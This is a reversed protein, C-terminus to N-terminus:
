RPVALTTVTGNGPQSTINLRGEILEAREHMSVLGLSGRREYGDKVADMDFGQGDDRITAVLWDDLEAIEISCHQANSHKLVNNVAEQVIAFVTLEINHSLREPYSASLHMQPGTGSEFRELFRQLAVVLGGDPADLVLPRLDFLLERIERTTRLASERISRLEPVVRQPEHQVLKEAFELSMAIQAIKQAPGDHLDRGLRKREDEQTVIIRDREARLQRYLLANAVATAAQAALTRMLDLDTADFGAGSETQAVELVGAVVGKFLMPVAVLACAHAGLLREDVAITNPAFRGDSVCDAILVAAGSSAVAGAVGENLNIRPLMYDEDETMGPNSEALELMSLTGSDIASTATEVSRVVLATRSADVLYVAAAQGATLRLAAIAIRRLLPTLRLEASITHSMEQLVVLARVQEDLHANRSHLRANEGQLQAILSEVAIPLNTFTSTQPPVAM